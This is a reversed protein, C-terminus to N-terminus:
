AAGAPAEGLVLRVVNARDPLERTGAGVGVEGVTMAPMPGWADVLVRLLAAGTPTCLEVDVPGGVAPIGRLLQVVPLTGHGSRVTGGGVSVPSAVLRDLDLSALAACVGVVDGIADHAGVDHFHVTEPDSGHVRGEADALAAFAAQAPGRVEEALEAAALLARVERWTRRPPDEEDACVRARTARLGGRDADGVSVRVGVGIAAVAEGVSPLSAGAGLLAGLLM